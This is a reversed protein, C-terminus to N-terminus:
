RPVLYFPNTRIHISEEAVAQEGALVDVLRGFWELDRRGHRRPRRRKDPSQEAQLPNRLALVTVFYFPGAEGGRSLQSAAIVRIRDLSVAAAIAAARTDFSRAVWGSTGLTRVVYKKKWPDSRIKRVIVRSALHRRTGHEWVDITFHLTTDFHSDISQLADSDGRRFLGPLAVSLMVSTGIEEFVARRMTLTDPRGFGLTMGAAGMAVGARLFTRRATKM